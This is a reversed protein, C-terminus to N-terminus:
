GACRAAVAQYVKARENVFDMIHLRTPVFSFGIRKQPHWQFVSGGFGMWGYYGERGWNAAREMRSAGSEDFRAVGGQTFTTHLGMDRRVPADHLAHWTAEDMHSQGAFTGKGAMMAAIRALGRASAHTNASPTEGQAIAPDNFVDTSTMGVFPPPAGATTSRRLRPLMPLIKRSLTFANDRVQRGMFRPKLSERFHRGPSIASYSKVRAMLDDPVGVYVDAALSPCLEHRLYEGITRGEPDVRRFLENVIWGRTIAHYERQQEEGERFTPPHGEIVSGVRNQKINETLLDEPALSQNFAALGAEHRMLDAVTINEKGAQGFEPWYDAVKTDYSLLGKGKLSALAIAELSKGSSFVNVLSDANFDEDGEASGVLDVVCDDGVYVCLQANDESLSHMTREFAEAVPEFGAAVTGDIRVPDPNNMRQALNPFVGM